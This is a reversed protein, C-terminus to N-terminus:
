TSKPEHKLKSLEKARKVIEEHSALPDGFWADGDFGLARAVEAYKDKENMFSQEMAKYEDRWNEM